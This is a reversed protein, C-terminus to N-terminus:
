VRSLCQRGGATQTLRKGAFLQWSAQLLPLGNTLPWAFITSSAFSQLSVREVKWANITCHAIAHKRPFSNPEKQQGISAAPMATKLTDWQNASCIEWICHSWRSESLQLPDSPCCVVLCHGHGKKPALKAKPLAKSGRRPRTVSITMVPQRIFDVQWQLVCDLCSIAPQMPYFSVVTWFSSEKKKKKSQCDAWPYGSVSIKWRELESWISFSWLITWMSNKPLKEPQNNDVELPWGSHEDDELRKDEKCFKKSWWQVTCENAIGLGFANKINCITEAAQHGNQAQILFNSM